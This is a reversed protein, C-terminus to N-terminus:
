EEVEWDWEEEEEETREALELLWQEYWPKLPPDFKIKPM